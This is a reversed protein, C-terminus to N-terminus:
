DGPDDAGSTPEPDSSASQDDADAAEALTAGVAAEDAEDQDPYTLDVHEGAADVVAVTRMLEALAKQRTFSAELAALRGSRELEKRMKAPHQGAQTALVTVIGDLDADALTVGAESAYATLAFDAARAVEAEPRMQARLAELDQDTAELYAGLGIGQREFQGALESVRADVELDVVSEPVAIAARAVLAEIAEQQAKRRMYDLKATGLQQVLETRMEGVTDFESNEDVWADSLEPLVRQKVEKVLVGFTLEEGARYPATEPLTANFKLISGATAGLLEADLEEVLNASGLEYLLDNRTLEEVTETNHHADLNVLVHDGEVAGRSVTELTAYRGRIADIEAEIEEETPAVQGDLTVVIDSVDGITVEPRLDLTAAFSLPGDVGGEVDEVTPRGVWDIEEAAVADALFDPVASPVAEDVIARRGVHRELVKRPVRGPRFGKLKVTRGIKRAARELAPSLEEETVEVEVRVRHDALPTVTTKM